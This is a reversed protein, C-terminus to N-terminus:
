DLKVYDFKGKILENLAIGQSTATAFEQYIEQPVQAYRYTTHEFVVHLTKSEFEYTSAKVTSSDYFNTQTKYM